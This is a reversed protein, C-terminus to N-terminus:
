YCTTVRRVIWGEGEVFLRKRSRDCTSTDVADTKISGTEEVDQAAVATGKDKLAEAASAERSLRAAEAPLPAFAIGAAVALFAVFAVNSGCLYNRRTSSGKLTTM